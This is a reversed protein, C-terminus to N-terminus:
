LTKMREELSKVNDHILTANQKMSTDLSTLAIEISQVQKSLNSTVQEVTKFRATKTAADAHLHALAQLRTMLIPLHQSMGQLRQLDDYLAAVTKSDDTSLLSSNNSSLKNRAKVAAELDQRIVKSRKQLLDLKKDDLKSLQDELVDIRSSLNVRSGSLSSDSCFVNEIRSLREELSSISDKETASSLANQSPADASYEDILGSVSAQISTSLGLNKQTQSTSLSQLQERLKRLQDQVISSEDRNSCDIELEELERKLRSMRVLPSETLHPMLSEEVKKSYPNSAYLKNAFIQFAQEPPMLVSEDLDENKTGVPFSMPPIDSGDYSYVVEKGGGALDADHKLSSDKM